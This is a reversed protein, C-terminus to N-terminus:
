RKKSIIAAGSPLSVSTTSNGILWIVGSFSFRMSSNSFIARALTMLVISFRRLIALKSSSMSVSIILSGRVHCALNLRHFPDMRPSDCLMVWTSAKRGPVRLWKNLFKYKTPAEVCGPVPTGITKDLALNTSFCIMSSTPMISRTSSLGAIKKWYKTMASKM